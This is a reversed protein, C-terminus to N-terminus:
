TRLEMCASGSHGPLTLLSMILQKNGFEVEVELVANVQGCRGDALRAQWKTMTVKGQAALNDTCRWRLKGKGQHRNHSQLHKWWDDGSRVVEARGRCAQWNTQLPLV